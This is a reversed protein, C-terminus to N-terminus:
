RRRGELARAIAEARASRVPRLGPDAAYMTDRVRRAVQRRLAPSVAADRPHASDSLVDHVIRAIVDLPVHQGYDGMMSEVLDPASMAGPASDSVFSLPGTQAPRVATM